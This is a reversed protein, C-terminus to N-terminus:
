GGRPGGDDRPPSQGWFAGVGGVVGALLLLTNRWQEYDPDNVDILYLLLTSAGAWAVVLYAYEEGPLTIAPTARAVLGIAAATAAGAAVCGAWDIASTPWLTFVVIAACYLLLAATVAGRAKTM